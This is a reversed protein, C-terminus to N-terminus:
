PIKIKKASGIPSAVTLIRSSCAIASFGAGILPYPVPLTGVKNNKKTETKNQLELFKVTIIAIGSYDHHHTSMVCGDGQGFLTKM